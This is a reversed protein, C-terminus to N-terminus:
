VVHGEELDSPGRDWDGGEVGQTKSPRSTWVEERVVQLTQLGKQGGSGGGGRRGEGSSVFLNVLDGVGEFSSCLYLLRGGVERYPDSRTSLRVVM